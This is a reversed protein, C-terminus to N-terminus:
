ALADVSDICLGRCYVKAAAGTAPAVSRGNVKAFSGGAIANIKALGQLAEPVGAETPRGSADICVGQLEGEVRGLFLIAECGSGTRLDRLADFRRFLEKESDPAHEAAMALLPGFPGDVRIFQVISM